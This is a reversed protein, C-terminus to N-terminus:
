MEKKPKKYALEINPTLIRVPTWNWSLKINLTFCYILCSILM